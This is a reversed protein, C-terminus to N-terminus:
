AEVASMGAVTGDANYTYTETRTKNGRPYSVTSVRGVDDYNITTTVGDETIASVRGAAYSVTLADTPPAGAITLNGGGLLSVGNVTKVNVGSVLAAQKGDLAAQLGTVTSIAQTGTHTARDRLQADTANATAGAAMGDLKAKDAAALFGAEAATASAHAAGKAGIYATLQAQLKGFATLVSDGAAIAANTVTSLGALLSGRVDEAFDRWTKDGRRYQAATGPAVAGEKGDLAAQLGEITAIAQTGTHTARDRLQANTANATAGAAVGALKAKEAATYDESSLGKGDVKDVKGAMGGATLRLELLDGAAYATPATGEQGRLVTLRCEGVVSNDVATVRMVEYDSEATGARKYATLVYWSGAPPSTLTGAAGDSVRVVGYDLEAAPAGSSPADKVAAIFNTQFNNLFIQPM